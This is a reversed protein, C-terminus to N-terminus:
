KKKSRNFHVFIFFGVQPERDILAGEPIRLFQAGLTTAICFVSATRGSIELHGQVWLLGMPFLSGAGLGVLCVGAYISAPSHSPVLVLVAAGASVLCLYLTVLSSRSVRTVLFINAARMLVQSPPENRVTGKKKHKENAMYLRLSTVQM